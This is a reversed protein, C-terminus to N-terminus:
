GLLTLLDRCERQLDIDSTGKHERLTAKLSDYFEDRARALDRHVQNAAVGLRAAIERAPLNEHFRLCLIELRREADAGASRAVQRQREVAEAVVTRSWARDFVRSLSSDDTVNETALPDGTLEERRRLQRREAMRAVNKVLGYLYGRFDGEVQEVREFTGGPRLCQWFVEQTGDEIEGRLPSDQWRATLYAKIAPLYRRVFEERARGDGEAAEQILDWCTSETFM